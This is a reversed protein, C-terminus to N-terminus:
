MNYDKRHYRKVLVYDLHYYCGTHEMYHQLYKDFAILCIVFLMIMISFIIDDVGPNILSIVIVPVFIIVSVVILFYFASGALAIYEDHNFPYSEYLCVDIDYNMMKTQKEQFEEEKKKLKETPDKKAKM